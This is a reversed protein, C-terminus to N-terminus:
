RSRGKANPWPHSSEIYRLIPPLGLRQRVDAIQGLRILEAVPIGAIQSVDMLLNYKLKM